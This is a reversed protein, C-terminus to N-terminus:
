DRYANLKAQRECVTFMEYNMYCTIDHQKLDPHDTNVDINM